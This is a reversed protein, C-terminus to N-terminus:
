YKHCIYLHNTLSIFTIYSVCSVVNINTCELRCVELTQQLNPQNDVQDQIIGTLQWFGIFYFWVILTINTCCHILLHCKRKQCNIDCMIACVPCLAKHRVPTCYHHERLKIYWWNLILALILCKRYFLCIYNSFFLFYLWIALLCVHSASYDLKLARVIHLVPRHLRYFDWLELHWCVDCYSAQKYWRQTHYRQAFIQCSKTSMLSFMSIFSLKLKLHLAM